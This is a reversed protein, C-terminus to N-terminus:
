CVRLQKETLMRYGAQLILAMQLRAPQWAPQFLFVKKVEQQWKNGTVKEIILALGNFAPNSYEYRAGPEFLLSDNLKFQILTRKM